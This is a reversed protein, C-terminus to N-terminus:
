GDLSVLAVCNNTQEFMIQFRNKEEHLQIETSRKESDLETIKRRELTILRLLALTLLLLGACYGLYLTTKAFGSGAPNYPNFEIFLISGVVVVALGIWTASSIRKM